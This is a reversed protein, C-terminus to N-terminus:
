ARVSGCRGCRGNSWRTPDHRTGNGDPEPAPGDCAPEPVLLFCGGSRRVYSATAEIDATRQHQPCRRGPAHADGRQILGSRLGAERLALKEGVRARLHEVKLDAIGIEDGVPGREFFETEPAQAIRRANGHPIVGAAGVAQEEIDFGRRMQEAAFRLQEVINERAELGEPQRRAKGDGCRWAHGPSEGAVSFLLAGNQGGATLRVGQARQRERRQPKGVLRQDKRAAEAQAADTIHHSLRARRERVAEAGNKEHTEILRQPMTGLRHRHKDGRGHILRVGVDKFGDGRGLVDRFAGPPQEQTDDLIEDAIALARAGQAEEQEAGVAFHALDIDPKGRRRAIRSVDRAQDLQTEVADGVIEICAETELGHPQVHELCLRQGLLLGNECCRSVARGGAAERRQDVAKLLPEPSAGDELKRRALAMDGLAGDHATGRAIAGRETEIRDVRGEDRPRQEQELPRLFGVDHGEDGLARRPLEAPTAHQMLDDIRFPRLADRGFPPAPLAPRCEFAVIVGDLVLVAPTEPEIAGSVIAFARGWATEAHPTQM